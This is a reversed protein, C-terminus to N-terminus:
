EEQLLRSQAEHGNRLRTMWQKQMPIIGQGISFFEEARHVEQPESSQLSKLCNISGSYCTLVTGMQELYHDAQTLRQDAYGLESEARSFNGYGILYYSRSLFHGARRLKSEAKELCDLVSQEQNAMTHKLESLGNLGTEHKVVDDREEDNQMGQKFSDAANMLKCDGVIMFLLCVTMWNRIM